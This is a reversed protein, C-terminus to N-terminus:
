IGVIIRHDGSKFTAGFDQLNGSSQDMQKFGRVIQKSILLILRNLYSDKM